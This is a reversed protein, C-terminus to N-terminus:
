IKLITKKGVQSGNLAVWYNKKGLSKRIITFVPASFDPSVIYIYICICM